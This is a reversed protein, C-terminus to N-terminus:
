RSTKGRLVKPDPTGGSRLTANTGWSPQRWCSRCALSYSLPGAGCLAGVVFLLSDGPLFPTVVLGTEAFVIVFLLAYVWAGNAAVFAELHKDIHLGFDILLSVIEM